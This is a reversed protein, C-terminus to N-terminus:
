GVWVSHITTKPCKFLTPELNIGPQTIQAKTIKNKLHTKYILTPSHFIGLSVQSRTFKCQYGPSYTLLNCPEWLVNLVQFFSLLKELWPFIMSNQFIDHFFSFFGPFHSNSNNDIYKEAKLNHSFLTTPLNWEKSRLWHIPPRPLNRWFSSFWPESKLDSVGGGVLSILFNFPTYAM